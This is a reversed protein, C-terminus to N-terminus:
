DVFEYARPLPAALAAVDVAFVPEGQITQANQALNLAESVANLRPALNSWDELARQLTPAIDGVRVARSLDRSVVILTGDRGGEKLSALKMPTGGRNGANRRDLGAPRSRSTGHTKRRDDGEM